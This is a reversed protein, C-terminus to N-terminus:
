GSTRRPLTALFLKGFPASTRYRATMLNLAVDGSLFCTTRGSVRSAGAGASVAACMRRGAIRGRQRQRSRVARQTCHFGITDWPAQQPLCEASGVLGM